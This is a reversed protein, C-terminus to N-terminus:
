SNERNNLNFNCLGHNYVMIELVIKVTYGLENVNIKKSHASEPKMSLVYM